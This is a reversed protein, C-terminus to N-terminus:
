KVTINVTTAGTKPVTVKKDKTVDMGGGHWGVVYQSERINLDYGM